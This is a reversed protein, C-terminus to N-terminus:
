QPLIRATQSTGGNWLDYRPEAYQRFFDELRKTLDAQTEAHNADGILNVWEGPDNSLQYLENPGDPHRLILKWDATRIARTNEFEYFVVDDWEISEGRLTASFDRGPSRPTKPMRDGLGIQGLITPMLDYNAVMMRRRENGAIVGPQRFILPIQMTPDFAHLPRTHDGMGWLGHQGCGLGQDATFVVLTNDALGLHKLATMVQGVGDDVGSIEAAYRRMAQLNNMYERNNKQWPHIPNRPFSPLLQDAYFEAHRNRAPKLLSSGLGYPGNYALFLFFSHQKNQEIFKVAHETWLDTTYKAETYIEGDRIIPQDYFEATHGHPKTIWYADFGEQPNMNDGLHWKGVLGCAYGADAMVEGLSTFDALTSRAQPGTQLRGARLFCHVGHQSPMLGTLFTARTPSCVANSAYAREFLMGEAALQDIHPTRLDQNGYCGLTWPGQNDTMIVVVNPKGGYVCVPALAWLAFAALVASCGVLTASPFVLARPTSASLRPM